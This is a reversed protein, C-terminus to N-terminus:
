AMFFYPPLPPIAGGTKVEDSFPLHDDERGLLKLGVSFFDQAEPFRVGAPWGMAIGVSNNRSLSM